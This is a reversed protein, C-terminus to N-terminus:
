LRLDLGAARNPRASRAIGTAPGVPADAAKDAPNDGPPAGGPRRDDRGEGNRFEFAVDGFGQGRLDHGLLDVHRRLIELTEPREAQITVTLGAEAPTFSVRVRGLEEPHLAVEVSGRGPLLRVADAIQRTAAQGEAQAGTAGASARGAEGRQAGEALSAPGAPAGGADGGLRESAPGPREGGGETLALGSGAVPQERGPSSLPL